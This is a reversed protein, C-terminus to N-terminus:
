FSLPWVRKQIMRVKEKKRRGHSTVGSKHMKVFTKWDPHSTDVKSDKFFLHKGTKKAKSIAQKSVGSIRGAESQSVLAM